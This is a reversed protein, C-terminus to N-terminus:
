GGFDAVAVVVGEEDEDLEGAFLVQEGFDVAAADSIPDM